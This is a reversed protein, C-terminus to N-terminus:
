LQSRGRRPFVEGRSENDAAGSLLSPLWRGERTPSSTPYINAATQGGTEKQQESERERERLFGIM